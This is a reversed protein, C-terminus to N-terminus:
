SDAKGKRSTNKPLTGQIGLLKRAIIEISLATSDPWTEKGNSGRVSKGYTSLNFIYYCSVYLYVAYTADTTWTLRTGSVHIGYSTAQGKEDHICVLVVPMDAEVVANAENIRRKDAFATTVGRSCEDFYKFIMWLFTVADPADFPTHQKAVEDRIKDGGGGSFPILQEQHKAFIRLRQQFPGFSGVSLRQDTLISVYIDLLGAHTFM